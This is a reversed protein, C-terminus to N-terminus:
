TMSLTKTCYKGSAIDELNVPAYDTHEVCVNVHRSNGTSNNHIHGHINLSKVKKENDSLHLPFHCMVLPVKFMDTGFQKYSMIKQFYPEYTKPEYDHNGLILMKRGRLRPMISKLRDEISMGGGFTVDGLHYIIDQDSVTNNWKEIIVENMHDSSEFGPRCLTGNPMKFKLINIHSFHTDSIVFINRTM